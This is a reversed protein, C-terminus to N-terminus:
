ASVNSTSRQCSHTTRLQSDNEAPSPRCWTPTGPRSATPACTRTTTGSCGWRAGTAAASSPSALVAERAAAPSLRQYGFLTVDMVQFPRERLALPRRCGPRLGPVRPLDRASASRTPSPWRATTTWGPARGTGGPQPVTWQLYHQRGGWSPQHVGLRQAADRLRHFETATREPDRYTGFGAHYGIEQGHKAIRRMLAAIYPHDLTYHAGAPHDPVAHSQFYFASTLGARASTDLLFDFTNHPDRLHGPGRDLMARVRRGALGPDRRRVLDAALQRALDAPRRGLTSLPDDVDHTLLVRYGSEPRRLRPWCRTLAAWLLETYADVVPVDLFGARHALSAAAPFRDHQDRDPLVAEEYRTLLFFAGGLLDVELRIEGPETPRAPGTARCGFLVPVHGGAPIAVTPLPPVPLSEPTLWGPGDAAFLVDPLLVAPTQEGATIRVDPRDAVRLQWEQGLREGLLVGLVYAREATRGPPVEVTLTM